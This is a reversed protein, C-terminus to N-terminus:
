RVLYDKLVPVAVVLANELRQMEALLEEASLHGLKLSDGLAIMQDAPNESEEEGVGITMIAFPMARFNIGGQAFAWLALQEPDTTFDSMRALGVTVVLRDDNIVLMATLPDAVNGVKVQLAEGVLEGDYAAELANQAEELTEITYVARGEEIMLEAM